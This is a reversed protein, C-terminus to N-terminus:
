CPSGGVYMTREPIYTDYMHVSLTLFLSADPPQRSKPVLVYRVFPKPWRDVNSRVRHGIHLAEIIIRFQDFVHLTRKLLDCSDM